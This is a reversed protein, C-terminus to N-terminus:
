WSYRGVGDGFWRKRWGGMRMRGDYVKCRRCVCERARMGGTATKKAEDSEGRGLGNAREGGGRVRKLGFWGVSQAKSVNWSCASCWVVGSM